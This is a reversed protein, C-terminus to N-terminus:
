DLLSLKLLIPLHDSFGGQYDYGYYTRYPKLGGYKKDEELLFPFSLIKADGPNVSIGAEANLLYGNVIIQDFIFWQSQYKLSGSNVRKFDYFLNYLEKNSIPKELKGAGLEVSLSEDEPNDNFDGIIIVKPSHYKKNIEDIKSKLLKASASRLPKTELLGSFRSPWHNCFIHLTDLGNVVGSIYLIERTEITDKGAILPYYRYEVPYFRKPHYLLGIDIGRRDPSEKHVIHFSTKNLPTEHILKELLYRNEIEALFVIDPFEWGTSNLIVKSLNLLKKDLRKNTWHLDGEPTFNDDETHIENKTDFLNEVNYFLISFDSSNQQAKSQQSFVLFLFYLFFLSIKMRKKSESMLEWILDKM